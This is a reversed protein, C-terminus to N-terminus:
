MSEKGDGFWAETGDKGKKHRSESPELDLVQAFNLSGLHTKMSSGQVAADQRDRGGQESM